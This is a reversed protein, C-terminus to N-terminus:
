PTLTSMSSTKNAKEIKQELYIALENNQIFMDDKLREALGDVAKELDDRGVSLNPKGAGPGNM